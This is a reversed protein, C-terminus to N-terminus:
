SLSGSVILNPRNSAILESLRIIKHNLDYINISDFSVKDGMHFKGAKCKDYKMWVVSNRVEEEEIFKYTAIHYAKLSDDISPNFGHRMLAKIILNQDLSLHISAGENANLDFERKAEDSLRISNETKLIEILQDKSFNIFSPTDYINLPLIAENPKMGMYKSYIGGDLKRLIKYDIPDKYVGSRSFLMRMLRESRKPQKPNKITINKL